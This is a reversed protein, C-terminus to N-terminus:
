TMKLESQLMRYIEPWSKLYLGTTEDALQTYTKSTYYMDMAEAETKGYDKILTKLIDSDLHVFISDIKARPTILAHLSRETCFCIQHSPKRHELEELIQAKSIKGDIFDVVRTAVDDDAVPGEVIDYDHTQQETDNIRNAVIFDLWEEAYGEFKLFKLKLIQILEQHFGFTSVVGKTNRWKGKRIAWYEAQSRIGTVYFGKGFDRKTKCFSLDVAEIATYSGHYVTETM